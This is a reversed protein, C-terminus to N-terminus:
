IAITYGDKGTRKTQYLAADAKKYLTEFDTGSEPALAVGISASIPCSRTGDQFTYHLAAVLAEAKQRAWAPNPVPVFVVFEDGGIRGALEDPGFQDKLVRAFDSIVLDGAAHGYQDNIKKFDDIDVIYFAYMCDPHDALLNRIRNQTAAKNYLGSMSDRQMQELLLKEAKKEKDINQRYTFMRISKDEDWYFIRATIRMWYYNEGDNTILFDYRLSDKGNQYAKLVNEPRFTDIYGQQYEQKIQKQAIFHLAEDYPTNAPVGLSEFYHETDESAARNHTIDLEYIDEYLKETAKQFINRHEQEKAVTLQVIQANYRRIVKTIAILVFCIIAIIILVGGIFQRSLKKDLATTDNDVILHWGLNPIFQASLYGKGQGSDYWFNQVQERDALIQDKLNGYGSDAFLDHTEYGTQSPSVEIKGTEDVLYAHVDFQNEYEALLAQLEKIRFGVGVIGLTAGDHGKIKCNIFVTIEDGSAEDNDINLAYERPDELFSYYWVNEPNDPTLVRDIGNFHYYRNTLTSVLFVSDYAYKEQYALLYDRMNQVYETDDLKEAEEALFNKLLNDNAMTISVNVPRTFVANIENNIGDVTLTSVREVDLEFIGKNSKYSIVSTVTFGLVIVICVFLNTQLLINRKM